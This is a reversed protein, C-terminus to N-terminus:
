VASLILRYIWRMFLYVILCAIGLPVVGFILFILCNRIQLVAVNMEVIDTMDLQSISAYELDPQIEEMEPEAQEQEQQDPEVKELQQEIEQLPEPESEVEQVPESSLQPQIEAASITEEELVDVAMIPQHVILFAIVSFM